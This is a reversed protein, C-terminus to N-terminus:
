NEIITLESWPITSAYKEKSGKPVYLKINRYDPSSSYRDFMDEGSKVNSSVSPPNSSGIYLSELNDCRGFAWDGIEVVSNGLDISKIKSLDFAWRELRKVSNPLKVSSASYDLFSHFGITTLSNPLSLVKKYMPPVHYLTTKDKSYMVGNESSYKPNDPHVNIEELKDMWALVNLSEQVDVDEHDIAGIVSSGITISRIQTTWSYGFMYHSIKIVSNPLILEKIADCKEFMCKTIIDKQTVYDDDNYKSPNNHPYFTGGGEVISADSMDLYMLKGGNVTIMMERLCRFDLGNLNGSIKMRTTSTKRGDILDPFVGPEFVNVYLIGDKEYLPKNPEQRTFTRIGGSVINKGVMTDTTLTTIEYVYSEGKITQTLRKANADYSYSFKVMVDGYSFIGTGDANYQYSVVDAGEIGYWTGLITVDLSEVNEKEDGDDGGCSVFSVSVIAVMLIAMWKLLNKKM